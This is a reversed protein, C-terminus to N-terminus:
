FFLKKVIGLENKMSLEKRGRGKGQSVKSEMARIVSEKIKAASRDDSANIEMPEYHKGSYVALFQIDSYKESLKSFPTSLTMCMPCDPAIFMLVTHEKAKILKSFNENMPKKGCAFLGLLLILSLKKM